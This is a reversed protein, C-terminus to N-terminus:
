VEFLCDYFSRVKIKEETSIPLQDMVLIKVPEAHTNKLEITQKYTTSLTKSVIGSAERFKHVPRYMVRVGPDVGLSCTFDESPSVAKLEAQLLLNWTGFWNLLKWNWEDYINSFRVSIMLSNFILNTWYVKFKLSIKLIILLLCSICEHLKYAIYIGALLHFIKFYKAVNLGIKLFISFWRFM